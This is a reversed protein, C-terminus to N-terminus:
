AGKEAVWLINLFIQRIIDSDFFQIFLEEKKGFVIDDITRNGINYINNRGATLNV